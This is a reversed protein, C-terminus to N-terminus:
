HNVVMTAAETKNMNNINGINVDVMMSSSHVHSQMYQKRNDKNNFHDKTKHNM